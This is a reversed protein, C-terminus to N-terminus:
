SNPLVHNAADVACTPDTAANQVVYDNDDNAPEQPCEPFEGGTGRGVYPTVAAVDL